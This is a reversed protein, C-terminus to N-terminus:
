DYIPHKKSFYPLNPAYSVEIEFTTNTMIRTDDIAVFALRQTTTNGSHGLRVQFRATGSYM